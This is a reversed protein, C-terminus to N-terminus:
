RAAAPSRFFGALRQAFTPSPTPLEFSEVRHSRRHAFDVEAHRVRYCGDVQEYDYHGQRPYGGRPNMFQDINYVPVGLPKTHMVLSFRSRQIDAIASGGHPLQPHWIVTDGREVSLLRKALGAAECRAVIDAQFDNWLVDSIRPIADLAAYHRLAMAERDPEGVRHGGPYAELAGNQEGADELAVWIGLYFYPPLTSFYPTDRHIPQASGREYFLSTYLCPEAGFLAKQVAHTLPNRAFLDFLGPMAAHLNIIRPYHGDADLFEAFKDPNVEAFRKFEHVLAECRAKPVAGRIITYGDRIVAEVHARVDAPLAALRTADVPEDMFWPQQTHAVQNEFRM